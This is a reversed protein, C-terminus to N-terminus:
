CNCHKKEIYNKNRKNLSLAFRNETFDSSSYINNYNNEKKKSKLKTEKKKDTPRKDNGDNNNIEKENNNKKKKDNDINNNNEEFFNKKYIKIDENNNNDNNEQMANNNEEINEDQEKYEKENEKLLEKYLEERTNKIKNDFYPLEAISRYFMKKMNKNEKASVEFFVLKKDKAFIEGEEKTVEREQLDIKNGCIVITTKEISEIFKIWNPLHEFSIKSSIDYVLFVLSANRIFSPILGRFKEQGATDWIQLKIDLGQYKIKKQYYDISISSKKLDRFDNEILRNIITSKGVGSDGVFIIKQHPSEVSYDFSETQNEEM